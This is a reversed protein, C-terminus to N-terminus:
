RRISACVGVTYQYPSGDDMYLARMWDYRELPANTVEIRYETWRQERIGVERAFSGLDFSPTDLWDYFVRRLHAAADPNCTYFFGSIAM